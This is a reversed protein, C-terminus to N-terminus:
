INLEVLNHNTLKSCSQPQGSTSLQHRNLITDIIENETYPRFYRSNYTIGHVKVFDYNIDMDIYQKMEPLMPVNPMQQDSQTIYHPQLQASDPLLLSSFSHVNRLPHTSSMHVHKMIHLTYGATHYKGLKYFELVLSHCLAVDDDKHDTNLLEDEIWFFHYSIELYLLHPPAQLQQHGVGKNEIQHRGPSYSLKMSIGSYGKIFDVM